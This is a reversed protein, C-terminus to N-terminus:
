WEADLVTQDIGLQGPRQMASRFFAHDERGSVKPRALMRAMLAIDESRSHRTLRGNLVALARKMRRGGAVLSILDQQETSLQPGFVHLLAAAQSELSAGGEVELRIFRALRAPWGDELGVANSDHIRYRVLPQEEILVVGLAAAVLYAWADHMLVGAMPPVVRLREQLASNWVMACGPGVNQVLANGLSPRLPSVRNATRKDRGFVSVRCVWLAPLDPPVSQLAAVATTLKESEWVDDQDAFAFFHPATPCERLLRFYTDPLGVHGSEGASTWDDRFSASTSEDDRRWYVQTEVGVQGAVSEAFEELFPAEGAVSLLVCVKPLSPIGGEHTRM